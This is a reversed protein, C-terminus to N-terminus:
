RGRVDHNARFVGAPDLVDKIVQLKAYTAADYFRAPDTREEVFNGYARGGAWPAMAHALRQASVHGAAGLAPTAAIAVGYLLFEGDLHTLAGGGRARRGVAGGLQRLESAVLTSGSGPGAAGVFASVADEDLAGLMASASVAPTPGEPDAHLRSLAAAPLTAFTDLEPRLDRLPALLDRREDLVAGDIAVLNRGRLPEPITPLDPLQLIRAASTVADPAEAAWEVWRNLVRESHTWDWALWGAYAHTLPLLEFELAVVAAFSGGGGRLAWLLEPEHEADTRVFHGSALVVEAAVIRNAQLGYRRAVWGLGGSLSYGVVGVDPSSGHLPYLGHLAAEPVVHDWLAGGQVRAIRRDADITVGQMADTRLLLTDSLDGLPAPNHGGGRLTVRLGRERAVAIAAGVGAVDTPRAILAPRQDVAVNWSMRLTDYDPHGPNVITTTFASLM